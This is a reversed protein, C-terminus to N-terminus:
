QTLINAASRPAKTQMFACGAACATAVPTVVVRDRSGFDMYNCVGVLAPAFMWEAGGGITWGIKV